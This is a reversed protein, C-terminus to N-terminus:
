WVEAGAPDGSPVVDAGDILEAPLGARQVMLFGSGGLSCMLTESLTATLAAAVTIDVANGGAEAICVAADRTLPADVAIAACTMAAPELWQM